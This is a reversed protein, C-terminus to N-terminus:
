EGEFNWDADVCSMLALITSEYVSSEQIRQEDLEQVRTTDNAGLAANRQENYDATRASWEQELQEIKAVDPENCEPLEVPQPREDPGIYGGAWLAGVIAAAVLVVVGAGIFLRRRPNPLARRDPEEDSSPRENAVRPSVPEPIADAHATAGRETVGHDAYRHLRLAGASAFSKGCDECILQEAM